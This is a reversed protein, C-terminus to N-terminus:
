ASSATAVVCGIRGSALDAVRVDVVDFRSAALRTAAHEITRQLESAVPPQEVLCFRGGPALRERVVALERAPDGQLFVGVNVAFIADFVADGLGAEDLAAVQFSARGAAVHEANRKRAMAIMAASRDIAVIRGGRLRECVLSVAVGHGCGIELVRDDPGIGLMEVAWVPREAARGKAM